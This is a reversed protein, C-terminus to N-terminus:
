EHTEDEKRNSIETATLQLTEVERAIEEGVSTLAASVDDNYGSQLATDLSNKTISYISRLKELKELTAQDDRIQRQLSAADMEIQKLLESVRFSHTTIDSLSPLSPKKKNWM